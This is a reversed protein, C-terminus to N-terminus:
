PLTPAVGIRDLWAGSERCKFIVLHNGPKLTYLALAGTLADRVFTEQYLGDAHVAQFTDTGNDVDVYFSDHGADNAVERVLVVYQGGADVHVNFIVRDATAGALCDDTAPVYVYEGASADSDMGIKFDGMLNAREAEYYTPPGTMLTAGGADDSPPGAEAPGSGSSSSGAGSSPGSSGSGSSSPGLALGELSCAGALLLAPPAALALAVAVILSPTSPGM